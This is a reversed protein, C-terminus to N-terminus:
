RLPLAGGAARLATRFPERLCLYDLDASWRRSAHIGLLGRYSTSWCRTEYRKAGSLLLTAWPQVLSLCNMVTGGKQTLLLIAFLLTM